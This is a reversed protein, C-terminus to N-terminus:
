CIQELAPESVVQGEPPAEALAGTDDTMEDTDSDALEAMEDTADSAEEAADDAESTTVVIAPTAVVIGAEAVEETAASSDLEASTAVEDAWLADEENCLAILVAVAGTLEAILESRLEAADTTLLAEDAPALAVCDGLEALARPRGDEPWIADSPAMKTPTAAPANM